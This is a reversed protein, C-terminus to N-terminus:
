IAQPTRSPERRDVRAGDHRAQGNRRAEERMERAQKIGAQIGTWQNAECQRIAELAFDRPFQALNDLHNQLAKPSAWLKKAAQLEEAWARVAKPGDPISGIFPHGNAIEQAKAPTPRNAKKEAAPRPTGERARAEAIRRAESQEDNDDAPRGGMLGNRRAREQREDAERKQAELRSQRWVRGRSDYDWCSAMESWCAQAEESTLGFANAMVRVPDQLGDFQWALDLLASYALKAMSSMQMVRADGWLDTPYRKYWPHAM